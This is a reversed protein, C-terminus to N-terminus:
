FKICSIYYLSALLWDTEFADLFEDVTKADWIIVSAERNKNLASNSLNHSGVLVAKKDIIIFKSHTLKYFNSAYKVNFGKSTLEEYIEKNTTQELIIRIDVGRQKARALADVVDRSTLVYVEIDITNEADDIFEIIENGDEPSFVPTIIPISLLYYSLVGFLLGIVFLAIGRRM